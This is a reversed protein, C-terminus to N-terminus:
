KWAEYDEEDDDLLAELMDIADDIEGDDILDEAAKISPEEEKNGTILNCSTLAMILTMALLVAILKRM